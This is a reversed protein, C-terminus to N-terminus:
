DVTQISNFQISGRELVFCITLSTEGNKTWESRHASSSLIISRLNNRFMLKAGGHCKLSYLGRVLM